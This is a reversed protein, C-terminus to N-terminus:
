IVNKDSCGIYGPSSFYGSSDISRHSALYVFEQAILLSTLERFDFDITASLAIDFGSNISFSIIPSNVPLSFGPGITNNSFANIKNYELVYNESFIIRTISSVIQLRIRM